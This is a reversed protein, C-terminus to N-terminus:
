TARVGSSHYYLIKLCIDIAYSIFVLLQVLSIISIAIPSLDVIWLPVLMSGTNIINVVISVMLSVFVMIKHKRSDFGLLLNALVLIMFIPTASNIIISVLWACSFSMYRNRMALNRTADFYMMFTPVAMVVIMVISLGIIGIVVAQVLKRNSMGVIRTTYEYRTYITDRRWKGM